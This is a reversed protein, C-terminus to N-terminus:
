DGIQIVSSMPRRLSLSGFSFTSRKRMRLTAMSRLSEPACSCQLTVAVTQRGNSISPSAPRVMPVVLSPCPTRGRLHGRRAGGMKVPNSASGSGHMARGHVMSPDSCPMVGVGTDPHLSWDTRTTKFPRRIPKARM